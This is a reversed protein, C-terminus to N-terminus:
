REMTTPGMSRELGRERDREVGGGAAGGALEVDTNWVPIPNQVATRADGARVRL